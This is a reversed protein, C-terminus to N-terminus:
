EEKVIIFETRRNLRRGEKTNNSAIPRTEGYGKYSIRKAQIGNKVLYRNVVKARQRSLRMNSEDDGVNDTHGQLVISIQPNIKLFEVLNDLDTRSVANLYTSNTVFHVNRLKIRTGARARKVKLNVIEPVEFEPTNPNIHQSSYVHGKKKATLIFQEHPKVRVAVAYDGTKQDVFGDTTKRTQVSKLEVSAGTLARGDEDFLQGKVFLVKKPRVEPYLYASFIDYGGKGGLMDSSFYMKKGDTSIVFGFEDNETNIPYGLNMPESFQALTDLKSYFIDLGGFGFHGDSAFYLTHSDAHIYPTKDDGPTNIVPGLNVAKTWKGDNDKLSRYIDLGGFGGERISAFYLVKGDATISPQGEFSHSDNISNDLRKLTSWTGDINDSTFIDCNKYSTAGLRILECITIYLHKNDITITVGGQNKDQNFPFPMVKGLTFTDITNSPDSLRRSFMFQETLNSETKKLDERYFRRTFYMFEGDPSLLPLYEDLESSTGVVSYPDFNVPNEKYRMYMEVNSLQKQAKELTEITNEKNQNKDVFVKLYNRAKQYEKNHYYFDGIYFYSHYNYLQPCFDIVKRYNKLAQAYYDDVKSSKRNRDKQALQRANRYNIDALVYYAKAFRPELRIAKELLEIGSKQSFSLQEIAQEYLKLARKNEVKICNNQAQLGTTGTLCILILMCLFLQCLAQQNFKTRQRWQMVMSGNCLTKSKNCSNPENKHM